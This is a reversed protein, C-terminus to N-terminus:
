LAYRSRFAEAHRAHWGAVPDWIRSLDPQVGIRDATSTWADSMRRVRVSETGALDNTETRDEDINYLEWAGPHKSVLKWSEDRLARNGEHEFWLAEPRRWEARELLPVFSHGEIPQVELGDRDRLVPAGALEAITPLLDVFHVPATRIGPEAIGDPWHVILPTSIGGEHVWSKYRRFPANSLNAWAMDYSMFTDPGGPALEPNNGIRIPGGRPAEGRYRAAGEPVPEEGLFEACGGNDSCVFIVTNDLEGLARLRDVLRGVGQDMRDIQAAYVAMRAAEWEPYRADDWAFSDPDRVSIPWAPDVLGDARLRELREARLRDWGSRFAGEYRAIDEELAHLPWHPATYALYLFFPQADAVARDVMDVAHETIEDTLYFTPDDPRVVRYGDLVFSPSFYNAAGGHLGWFEDFGRQMPVVPPGPRDPEFLDLDAASVDGGVHWKGSLLTRYGAARLVEAITVCSEDLYGQYASPEPILPNWKAPQSSGDLGGFTMWGIGAQHPHLGTLLAARSPCCRASNYMQTFRLGGAALRDINPTRIEGGYCGLDSFGMDDAMVVVVNRRKASGEPV